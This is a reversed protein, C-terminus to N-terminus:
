SLRWIRMVGDATRSTCVWGHKKCYHYFASSTSKAARVEAEDRIFLAFSDGPEMKDFVANAKAHRIRAPGVAVNKDIKIEINM